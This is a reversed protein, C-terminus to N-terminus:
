HLHFYYFFSKNRINAHPCIANERSIKHIAFWAGICDDDDDDKEHIVGRKIEEM